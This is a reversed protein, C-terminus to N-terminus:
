AVEGYEDVPDDRRERMERAIEACREASRGTTAQENARVTDRLVARAVAGVQDRSPAPQRAAFFEAAWPEMPRCEFLALSREINAADFLRHEEPIDTQALKEALLNRLRVSQPVFKPAVTKPTAAEGGGMAGLARECHRFADRRKALTEDIVALLDAAEPVRGFHADRKWSRLLEMAGASWLDRPVNPIIQHWLRARAKAEDKTLRENFGSILQAVCFVVHDYDAPQLKSGIVAVATRLHAESPVAGTLPLAGVDPHVPRGLDALWSKVSGPM